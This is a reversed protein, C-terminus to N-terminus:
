QTSILLQQCSKTKRNLKIITLIGSPSINYNNYQMLINATGHLRGLSCSYRSLLTLSSCFPSVNQLKHNRIVQHLYYQYGSKLTIQKYIM